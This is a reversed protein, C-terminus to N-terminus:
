TRESRCAFTCAHMCAGACARLCVCAQEAVRPQVARSCFMPCLNVGEPSHLRAQVFFSVDEDEDPLICRTANILHVAPTGLAALV